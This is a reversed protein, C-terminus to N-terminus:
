WGTPLRSRGTWRGTDWTSVLSPNTASSLFVRWGALVVISFPCRAPGTHGGASDSEPRFPLTNKVQAGDPLTDPEIYLGEPLPKGEGRAQLTPLAFVQTSPFSDVWAPLFEGTSTTGIAGSDVEYAMVDVPGPTGWPIFQDPFLYVLNAGVILLLAAAM